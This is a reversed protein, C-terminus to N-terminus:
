PQRGLRQAVHDKIIQVLRTNLNQFDMHVLIFGMTRGPIKGIVQSLCGQMPVAPLDPHHIRFSQVFAGPSFPGSHQIHVRFGCGTDSLDTMAVDQFAVGALRFSCTHDSGVSLRPHLALEEESPLEYSMPTDEEGGQSGIRNLVYTHIATRVREHINIFEVEVRAPQSRAPFDVKVVQAQLLITPLDPHDFKFLALLSGPQIVQADLFPMALVCRVASIDTIAVAPFAAGRHRFSVTHGPPLALSPYVQQVEAPKPHPRSPAQALRRLVHQDFLTRVRPDPDTFEARVLTEGGPDPTVQVVRANLEAVPLDPHEITLCELPAGEPMASAGLRDIRWSCGGASIDVLALGSFARGGARFKLTYDSGVPLQAFNKKEPAPVPAADPAPPKAAAQREKRPVSQPIPVTRTVLYEKLPQLKEEQGPDLAVGVYIRGTRVMIYAVKGAAEVAPCLHLDEIRVVPLAEGRVLIDEVLPIPTQRRISLALSLQLRLGNESINEIIGSVAKGEFLGTLLTGRAVKQQRPVTRPRQRREVLELRHPLALHLENGVREKVEAKALFRLDDLIFRLGLIGGRRVVISGEVLLSFGDERVSAVNAAFESDKIDVAVCPAHLREITELYALVLETSVNADSRRFRFFDM